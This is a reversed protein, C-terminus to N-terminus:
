YEGLETERFQTEALQRIMTEEEGGRGKGGEKKM